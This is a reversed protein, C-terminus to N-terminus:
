AALFAQIAAATEAPASLNPCHGTAQLQVLISGPVHRHVYDGVATPAIVDDSCQLILSPVTLRGLDDRNDSLFTVRAFHRSITPDARCFTQELEEGLEPRDANAMILPAMQSSWGLYNSDMADLLSEIDARDFGGVYDVDNLYRPSPGILVLSNFLDPRDIAALLGIMGSVSHGVFDIDTVDLADCIEIVDDAYGRLSAYRDFSFEDVATHGAGPHDFLIVRQEDAFEPWVYRWMSQDCGFGHAFMIPRGDPNGHEVTNSSALIDIEFAGDEAHIFQPDYARGEICATM